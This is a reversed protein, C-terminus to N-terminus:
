GVQRIMLPKKEVARRTLVSSDPAFQLYIPLIAAGMASARPGVSGPLIAPIVVGQPVIELFRAEVAAVVSGMLPEPLLGDIVVAEVDVVSVTAVLAQALADACDERWEAFPQAAAAAMPDLERVRRLHVGAARLHNLLGYISARRLLVEFPGTPPPVSSLRSPTVPMPGYAAANGNPGTQLVSDLILGGGIITGITLHVFDRLRQGAGFVLEAAAAASADNEVFVPLRASAEFLRDLDVDRWAESVERPFGLESEWGGLFYPASIGLGVLRRAEPGLRDRFGQVIRDGALAVARPEPFDHDRSEYAIVEGAFGMLIGDLSRRGIHLGISYGGRPNLGYLTSPQGKGGRRQGRPEVYGAELLAGLIDSVAPPTLRAHRAVDAKSAEGLRRIADLVVRENYHRLQLSNSGQGLLTM